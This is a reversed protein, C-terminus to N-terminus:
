QQKVRRAMEKTALDNLTTQYKECTAKLSALLEATEDDVELDLRSRPESNVAVPHNTHFHVYGVLSANMISIQPM